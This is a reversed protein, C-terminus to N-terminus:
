INGVIGSSARAVTCLRFAHGSSATSDNVQNQLMTLMSPVIM